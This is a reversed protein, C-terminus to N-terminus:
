IAEAAEYRQNASESEEELVSKDQKFANGNDDGGDGGGCKDDGDGDGICSQKRLNVQKVNELLDDSTLLGHLEQKDEEVAELKSAIPVKHDLLASGGCESAEGMTSSMPLKMGPSVTASIDCIIDPRAKVDVWTNGVWDRSTRIDNKRLTQFKDEGPFYVQLSDKGSIDVQTVVGEWWGDCWWADVPAGVKFSCCRSDESPRPRITLRGPCRMSLKDPAAVRSAPVWEELNGSGEVDQVDDYQVKLHKQSTRLVKCRFWCGRIGSDQCLLEIKEDVKFSLPCQPQTQTQTQPGVFKIGMPGRSLRFKLKPYASECKTIQSGPTSNTVGSTEFRQHEKCSRKRKPDHRVPDEHTFDDEEQGNLKHCKVKQKSALSGSLFSFIAQNSYGRLKTLTFPKVKNNKLQRFCMYVGSSLTHPVVALCKEYHKPTLVTAPGDICEASIVQVHPTIFVERPHPNLQSIVSM